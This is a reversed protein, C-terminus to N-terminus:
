SIMKNHGMFRSLQAIADQIVKKVVSELEKFTEQLNM